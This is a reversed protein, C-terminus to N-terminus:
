FMGHIGLSLAGVDFDIRPGSRQPGKLRDDNPPLIEPRDFAFLGLGTVLTALGVGGAIEAAHAFDDRAGLAANYQDRQAVTLFSTTQEDHLSSAVSQRGLALGALVGGAVVGAAGVSLTSWAAVRRRTMRLNAAVETTADRHLDVVQGEPEHGALAVSVFHAGPEVSLPAALPLTARAQGDVSVLAGSTGTVLLRAPRPRLAVHRPVLEGAIADVAIEEAEYGQAQVRVKHPGPKVKFVSPALVFAGGDVSVEAGEAPCSLLLRTPSSAEKAPEGGGEAGEQAFRAEFPVLAALAQMADERRKATPDIRLYDRYLGIARRLTAPKPDALYQRRYAQAASFLLSSSASLENAKLFAEAAVPYQGAKYAAAGADFFNAAQAIKAPDAAPPPPAQAFLPPALAILAATLLPAARRPPIM